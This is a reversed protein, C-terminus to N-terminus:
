KEFYAIKRSPNFVLTFGTELLFDMGIISPIPLTQGEDKIIETSNLSIYVPMEIDLGGMRILMNDIRKTNIKEGALIIDGDKGSLSNVTISSARIKKRDVASIITEPCGTDVIAEVIGIISGSESRIFISAIVRLAGAVDEKVRLDIRM